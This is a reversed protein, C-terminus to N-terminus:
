PNQKLGPVVMEFWITEIVPRTVHEPHAAYWRDLGERVSDLSHGKMGRGFRPILSRDDAPPKSGHFAAEVQYANAIGVLYAKKVQESSQTWQEGTVLPVEAARAIGSATALTVCAVLALMGSRLKRM